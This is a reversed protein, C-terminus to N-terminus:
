PYQVWDLGRIQNYWASSNFESAMFQLVTWLDATSNHRRTPNIHARIEPFCLHSLDFQVRYLYGLDDPVLLGVWNGLCLFM